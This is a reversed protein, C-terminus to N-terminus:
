WGKKAATKLEALDFEIDNDELDMDKIDNICYLCYFTNLICHFCPQM